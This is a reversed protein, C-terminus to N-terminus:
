HCGGCTACSGTCSSEPTIYATLKGNIETILDNLASEANNFRKLTENADIKKSLEDIREQITHIALTDPEKASKESKLIMNQVNYERTLSMAEADATLEERADAYETVIPDIKLEEGFKELLEYLKDTM